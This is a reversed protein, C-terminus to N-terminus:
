PGPPAAHPLGAKACAATLARQFALNSSGAEGASGRCLLRAAGGCRYLESGGIATAASVDVCGRGSTRPASTLAIVVSVC